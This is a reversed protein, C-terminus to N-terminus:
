KKFKIKKNWWIEWSKNFSIVWGVTIMISVMVGVTQILFQNNTCIGVIGIIVETILMLIIFLIHRTM